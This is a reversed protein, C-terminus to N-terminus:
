ILVLQKLIFVWLFMTIISGSSTFVVINGALNEDGGISKVLSYSAIATPAAFVALIVVLTVGQFGLAVAVAILIAPFVVLRCIVSTILEKLHSGVDNLTFSAGLFVFAMTTSVGAISNIPSAIFEPLSWHLQSFLIGLISAVILPNTAVKFLLHKIELKKGSYIELVTVSFANYCPIVLLTLLSTLASGEDGYLSIAVPMGFIVFNSRMMGQIMVGIKNQNKTLIKAIILALFLEGLIGLFVFLLLSKYDLIAGDFQYINNFALVPLFFTAIIRNMDSVVDEKLVNFRKLAVGFLLLFLLPAIVNISLLLDEM